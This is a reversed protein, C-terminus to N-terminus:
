LAEKFSKGARFKPTKSAKIKISEGTKPNRGNRAAREGVYYTGFGILTVTDGKKLSDIVSKIFGDLVKTAIPKSVGTKGVISDVLGSKNVIFRGKM